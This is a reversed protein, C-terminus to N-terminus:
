PDTIITILRDDAGTATFRLTVVDGNLDGAALSIKYVGNSIEAVANACAAFAAGDLSRTATVTLGTKPTIHDTSDFMVFEFNALATNKQIGSRNYLEITRTVTKYGALVIQVCYEESDSTSAITTDEDILLAYVATMNAPEAITPTTYVVGAAGNRSRTVTFGSLGEKLNGAADEAVFYIYQDIVGSPIRM